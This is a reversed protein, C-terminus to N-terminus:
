RAPVWRRPGACTRPSVRPMTSAAASCWASWGCRSASACGTRSEPSSRATRSRNAPGSVCSRRTARLTPITVRCSWGRCDSARSRTSCRTARRRRLARATATCCTSTSRYATTRPPTWCTSCPSAGHPTTPRKWGRCRIRCRCGACNRWRAACHTSTTSVRACRRRLTDRMPRACTKRVSDAVRRVRNRRPTPRSLSPSHSGTSGAASSTRCGARRM